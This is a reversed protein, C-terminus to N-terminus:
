RSPVGLPAVLHISVPHATTTLSAASLCGPSIRAQDFSGFSRTAPRATPHVGGLAACRAHPLSCAHVWSSWTRGTELGGPISRPLDGDFLRLAHWEGEDIGDEWGGDYSDDCEDEYFM